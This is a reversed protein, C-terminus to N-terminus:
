AWPDRREPVLLADTAEHDTFREATADWAAQVAGGRPFLRILANAAHCLLSSAHGGEVPAHPEAFPGAAPPRRETM